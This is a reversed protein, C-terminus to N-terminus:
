GELVVKLSRSAEPLGWRESYRFGWLIAGGRASMFWSGPPCKLNFGWILYDGWAESNEVGHEPLQLWDSLLLCGSSALSGNSTWSVSYVNRLSPPLAQKSCICKWGQRDTVEGTYKSVFIALLARAVWPSIGPTTLCVEFGLMWSVSALLHHIQLYSWSWLLVM